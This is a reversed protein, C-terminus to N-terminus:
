LTYENSLYGPDTAIRQAATQNQVPRSEGIELRIGGRVTDSKLLIEANAAKGSFGWPNTRVTWKARITSKAASIGHKGSNKKGPFKSGTCDPAKFVRWGRSVNM